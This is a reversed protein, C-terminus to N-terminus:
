GEQEPVGNIVLLLQYMFIACFLRTMIFFFRLYTPKFYSNTISSSEIFLKLPSKSSIGGASFVSFIEECPKFILGQAYIRAFNQYDGCVKYTSDFLFRTSIGRKYFMSQHVTPLRPSSSHVERSSIKVTKNAFRINSSFALGATATLTTCWELRSFILEISCNSFITDGSNMFVVYEGSSRLVGKNMADYIGNDPESSWRMQIQRPRDLRQLFNATGDLSFGDVIIHEVLKENEPHNVFNDISLITSKLGALDNYTITIISLKIM